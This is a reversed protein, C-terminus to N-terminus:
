DHFVTFTHTADRVGVRMSKILEKPDDIFDSHISVNMKLIMLLHYQLKPIVQSLTRFYIDGVWTLSGGNQCEFMIQTPSITKLVAAVADAKDHGKGTDSM